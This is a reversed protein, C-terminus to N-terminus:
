SLDNVTVVVFEFTELPLYCEVEVVQSIARDLVVESNQKARDSHHQGSFTRKLVQHSLNREVEHGGRRLSSVGCRSIGHRDYHKCPPQIRQIFDLVILRTDLEDAM